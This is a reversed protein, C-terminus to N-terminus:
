VELDFDKYYDEPTPISCGLKELTWEMINDLYEGFEVKNQEATSQIREVKFMKGDRITELTEKLFISKFYEHAHEETFRKGM